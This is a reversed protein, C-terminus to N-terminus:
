RINVEDPSGDLIYKRIIANFDYYHPDRSSASREDENGSDINSTSTSGSSEGGKEEGRHM